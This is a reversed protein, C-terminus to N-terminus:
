RMGKIAKIEEEKLDQITELHLARDLKFALSMAEYNSLEPYDQLFMACYDKVEAYKKEDPATM